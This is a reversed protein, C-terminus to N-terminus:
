MCAYRSLAAHTLKARVVKSTGTGQTNTAPLPLFLNSSLKLLSFILIAEYSLELHLLVHELATSGALQIKDVNKSRTPPSKICSKV